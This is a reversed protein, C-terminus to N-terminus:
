YVSSRENNLRANLRIIEIRMAALVRRYQRNIFVLHMGM